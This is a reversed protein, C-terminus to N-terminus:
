KNNSIYDDSVLSTCFPGCRGTSINGSMEVPPGLRQLLPPAQQSHHLYSILTQKFSILLIQWFDFTYCRLSDFAVEISSSIKKKKLAANIHFLNETQSTMMAIEELTLCKQLIKNYNKKFKGTKQSIRKLSSHCSLLTTFSNFALMVCPNRVKVSSTCKDMWRNM